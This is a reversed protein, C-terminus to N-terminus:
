QRALACLAVDVARISRLKVVVRTTHTTTTTTSRRPRWFAVEGLVKGEIWERM